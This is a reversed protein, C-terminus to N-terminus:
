TRQTLDYVTFMFCRQAGATAVAQVPQTRRTAQQNTGERATEYNRARQM